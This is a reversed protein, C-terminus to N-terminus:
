ANRGGAAAKARIKLVIPTGAFGFRRRIQNILQREHSFHLPGGRGTFLVFTPPRVSAQTMYLIKREEFRLQEVFRNL